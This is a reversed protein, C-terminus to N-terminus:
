KIVISIKELKVKGNNSNILTKAIQSNLKNVYQTCSYVMGRFATEQNWYGCEM